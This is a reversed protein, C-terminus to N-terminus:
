NKKKLNMKKPLIAQLIKVLGWDRSERTSSPFYQLSWNKRDVGTM